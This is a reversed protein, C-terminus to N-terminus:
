DIFQHTRLFQEITREYEEPNENYSQAHVGNKALYLQKPGQKREYLEQTMDPLIFDDQESHIFLVPKHIHEVAELPSLGSLRYRDRLAVAWEALHVLWAPAVKVERKMQHILQRRFDSFPCDAIYFDARDEVSGAYLIATAAGMSEGHIGFMVDEGERKILEQVVAQLDYKEYHGFSTTLGESEGHRRHDYLVANFGRKLFLNMYKISNVKTETVGHAFIVFKKGSNPTIFVAKLKYGYPSAVWVEEKPLQEYATPDLRKAEVERNFILQEDKKRMYLIRQSLYYGAGATVAAAAGLAKLWKKM